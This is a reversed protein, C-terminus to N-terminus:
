GSLKEEIYRGLWDCFIKSDVGAPDQQYLYLKM